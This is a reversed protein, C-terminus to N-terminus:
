LQIMQPMVIVITMETFFFVPPSVLFHFENSLRNCVLAQFKEEDELKTEMENVKDVSDLQVFEESFPNAMAVFSEDSSTVREQHTDSTQQLVRDVKDNIERVTALCSAVINM